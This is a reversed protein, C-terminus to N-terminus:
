IQSGTLCRHHLMKQFCTVASLRKNNEGFFDLVSRQCAELCVESHSMSANLSNLAVAGVMFIAISLYM